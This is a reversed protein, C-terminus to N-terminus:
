LALLQAVRTELEEFDSFVAHHPMESIDVTRIGETFLLFPVGARQATEADIPSDGVYIDVSGLQQAVWLLPAPDPKRTPLTDGAVVCDFVKDLGTHVLVPALPVGPKNTVLALRHGSRRLRALAAMVGPFVVTEQAVQVYHPIFLAMLADFEAPDLDTDAILRQLFVREGLGVYGAVQAVPVPPLGKDNLLANAAKAIGGLSDILTGDLDFALVPGATM